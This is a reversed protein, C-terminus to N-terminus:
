WSLLLRVSGEVRIRYSIVWRHTGGARNYSSELYEFIAVRAAEKTPWSRRYLLECKLSATFAEALANDYAESASGM